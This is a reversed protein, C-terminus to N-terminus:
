NLCNSNNYNYYNIISTFKHYYNNNILIKKTQLKEDRQFNLMGPEYQGKILLKPEKV